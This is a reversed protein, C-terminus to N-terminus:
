PAKLAPVIQAPDDTMIGDAGLAVLRRAEVPDDVVWFDVKLGLAHAKDLFARTDFRVPGMGTPVQARGGAPPALALLWRPATWLRVVERQALGTGGEWRLARIQRLNEVHFSALNVRAEAGARRITEVIRAVARADRPKADVNWRAHPLADLAEELSPVRFEGDRGRPHGFGANWRRVEDFTCADIPRDVGCTRRGHADHALVVVGDRTVQADTELADAGVALAREFAPITNEPLEACAGRHAWVIAM